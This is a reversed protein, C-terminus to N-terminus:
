GVRKERKAYLVIVLSFLLLMISMAITVVKLVDIFGQQYLMAILGLPVTAYFLSFILVLEQKNLVLMVSVLPSSVFNIFLWPTMVSAAKGALVWNEGFVFGFIKEAFLYVFLFIPASVLSAKIIYKTIIVYLESKQSNAVKQFFVQGLAGGVLVIPVQVMKWALSFQGLTATAFYKAILLNIGSLRFSDIVANPLSLFPFKKYKKMLAILKLRNVYPFMKKDNRGILQGLVSTSVAQGLLSGFILGGVGFGGFGFGLNTTGTTVSQSVKSVALRKYQKKRNNWYNFSQYWGTLLVSLPIVYLWNSLAPDGLLSVIKHNFLFILLLSVFSVGCSIILSLWLMNVADEEKKPLMIALEYKGTAFTSFISAISMYLALLGFDEPTYIRTLIPSIAIPIAQALMSGTMLTLVNRSFESKPKLKKLM